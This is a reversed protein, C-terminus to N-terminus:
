SQEVMPPPVKSLKGECRRTAQPDEKHWIQHFNSTMRTSMRVRISGEASVSSCSSGLPAQRLVMYSAQSSPRQQLDPLHHDPRRLTSPPM